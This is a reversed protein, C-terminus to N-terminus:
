SFLERYSEVNSTPRYRKVPKFKFRIADAESLSVKGQCARQKDLRLYLNGKEDSFQDIMRSLEQRDTSSFSSAIQSALRNAESSSFIAKFTLIKNKFHGESSAAEFRNAPVHLLDALANLIKEQDETMHVVFNAEAGSFRSIEQM